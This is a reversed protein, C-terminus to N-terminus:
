NGSDYILDTLDVWENRPIYDCCANMIEGTETNFIYHEDGSVASDPIFMYKGEKMSSTNDDDLIASCALLFTAVIGITAFVNKIENLKKM